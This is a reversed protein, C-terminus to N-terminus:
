IVYINLGWHQIKSTLLFPTGLLPYEQYQGFMYINWLWVWAFKAYILDHTKSSFHENLKRLDINKEQTWCESEDDLYELNALGMYWFKFASSFFLRNDPAHMIVTCYHPLWSKIYSFVKLEDMWENKWKNDIVALGRCSPAPQLRDWSFIHM